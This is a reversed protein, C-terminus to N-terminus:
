LAPLKCKYHKEVIIPILEPYQAIKEEYKKKREEGSYQDKFRQSNFKFSWNIM